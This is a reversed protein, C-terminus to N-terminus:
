HPARNIRWRLYLVAALAIFAAVLMAQRWPFQWPPLTSVIFEGTPWRDKGDAMTVVRWTTSTGPDLGEITAVLVTLERGEHETNATGVVTAKATPHPAVRFDGAYPLGTAPDQLTPNFGHELRYGNAEPDRPFIVQVTASDRRPDARASEVKLARTITRTGTLTTTTELVPSPTALAPSPVVAPAAIEDAQLLKKESWQVIFEASVPQRSGAPGKQATIRWRLEGDAASAADITEGTWEPIPPPEENTPLPQPPPLLGRFFDSIRDGITEIIGRPPAPPAYTSWRDDVFVELRPERWEGVSTKWDLLRLDGGQDVVRIAQNLKWPKAPAPPPTPSIKPGVVPSPKPEAPPAVIPVRSSEGGIEVFLEVPPEAGAPLDLNIPVSTQQGSEVAFERADLPGGGSFVLGPVPSLKFRGTVGGANTVTIVDQKNGRTFDLPGPLLELDAPVPPAVLTIERRHFPTALTIRVDQREGKREPPIRLAVPVSTGPALLVPSQLEVLGAPEATVTIEQRETTRSLLTLSGERAKGELSFDGSTTTVDFPAISRGRLVIQAGTSDNLGPRISERVEEGAVTPAYRILVNTSAGRPLELFATGLVEFPPKTQLDIELVDGGANTLPLKRTMTEGAAAEFDLVAPAALVPPRDMITILISAPASVGGGRAARARFTFNDTTSGDSNDHTYIVSGDTSLSVRDPDPQVPSSLRGHRPPRAIEYTVPNNGQFGRLTINISDGRWVSVNTAVAIPPKWLGKKSQALLTPPAWVASTAAALLIPLL